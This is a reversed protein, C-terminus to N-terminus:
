GNAIISVSDINERTGSLAKTMRMFRVSEHHAAVAFRHMPVRVVTEKSLM